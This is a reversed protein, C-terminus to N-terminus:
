EVYILGASNVIVDKTKLVDSELSLTITVSGGGSSITTTPSPGIFNISVSSSPVTRIYVGSELDIIEVEEGQGSTYCEDGGAPNTDAYLIYKKNKDQAQETTLYIGYGPPVPPTIGQLERASTAMEQARRIDQALKHASRLLSFQANFAKYNPLLIASLILIITAAVMTEIITFGKKNSYQNVRKSIGFSRRM